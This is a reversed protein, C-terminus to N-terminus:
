AVRVVHAVSEGSATQHSRRALRLAWLMGCVAIAATLVTTGVVLLVVIATLGAAVAGLVRRPSEAPLPSPRNEFRTFTVAVVAPPQAVV